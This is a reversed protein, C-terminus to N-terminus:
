DEQIKLGLIRIISEYVNDAILINGLESLHRTEEFLFFDKESNQMADLFSDYINLYEYGHEMLVHKVIENFEVIKSNMEPHDKMPIISIGIVKNCCKSIKNVVASYGEAFVDAGEKKADNHGILLIVLDPFIDEFDKDFRKLVDYVSDGSIGKNYFRFDIDKYHVFLRKSVFETYNGTYSTSFMKQPVVSNKVGTRNTFSDGLFVINFLRKERVEYM